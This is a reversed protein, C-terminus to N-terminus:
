EVCQQVWDELGDRLEPALGTEERLLERVLPVAQTGGANHVLLQAANAVIVPSPHKLASVLERASLSLKQALEWKPERPVEPIQDSYMSWKFPDEDTEDLKEIQEWPWEQETSNGQNLLVSEIAELDYDQIHELALSAETSLTQSDIEMAAIAGRFVTDIADMNSRASMLSWYCHRLSSWGMGRLLIALAVPKQSQQKPRSPELNSHTTRLIAELIARNADNTQKRQRLNELLKKPNADEFLQDPRILRWLINGWEEVKERENRNNLYDIVDATIVERLSSVVGLSFIRQSIVQEIQRITELGPQKQLLLQFGDHIVQNQFEWGYEGYEKSKKSLKPPTLFPLRCRIPAQVPEAVIDNLVGKLTNLDVYDEGCSLALGTAALRTWSNTNQLM